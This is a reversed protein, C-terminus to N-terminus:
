TSAPNRRSALGWGIFILFGALDVINVSLFGPTIAPIPAHLNVVMSAMVGLPGFVAMLCTWFAAFWGFRRHWAVRDRVVMLVQATIILLWVTVVVAHVSSSCRRRRIRM